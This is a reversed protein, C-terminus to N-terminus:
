RNSFGVFSGDNTAGSSPTAGDNIVGYTTFPENGSIRSVRVYGNSVGFDSLVIGKQYWGGPGIAIDPGVGALRGTTGDFVEWRYTSTGGGIGLNAIALNSRASSDQRLSYVWAEADAAGQEGQAPYFLGYQGRPVAPAGTRAGAFGGDLVGALSFTAKLAGAYSAGGKPGINVGKSRLYQVAQPIIRQEFPGLSETATGGAGASPTLSEVYALAVTAQQSSYNVLVLESEFGATEVLVPVVQAEKWYFGPLPAVYSGDNTANDNFVGYVFFPGQGSVLQVQVYGNAYGAKSLVRSLQMWHGPGLSVDPLTVGEPAGSAEYLTVRLTVSESAGANALALNSRDLDNERLGYVWAEDTFCDEIRVGAYSLGSRGTGSPTTTRAGVFSAEASSLGDFRVVLTGGQNSGVPIGLGQGRLYAIADPVVLQKGPELMGTVTGSGTAGLATAATYVMTLQATTTGRNVIALETGYRSSGEGAVDLVIPVFRSM